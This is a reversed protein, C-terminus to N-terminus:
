GKLKALTLEESTYAYGNHAYAQQFRFQRDKGVPVSDTILFFLFMSTGDESTRESLILKAIFTENRAINFRLLAVIVFLSTAWYLMWWSWWPDDVAFAYAIMPVVALIYAFLRLKSIVGAIILGLLIWFTATMDTDAYSKIWETTDGIKFVGMDYDKKKISRKVYDNHGEGLDVWIWPYGDGLDIQKIVGSLKVEPNTTYINNNPRNSITLIGALMAFVALCVIVDYVFAGATFDREDVAESYRSM